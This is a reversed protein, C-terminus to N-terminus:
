PTGTGSDGLIAVATKAGAGVRSLSEAEALLREIHPSEPHAYNELTRRVTSALTKGNAFLTQFDLSFFKHDPRAEIRPDYHIEDDESSSGQESAQYETEM